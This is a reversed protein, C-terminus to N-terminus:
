QSILHFVNHVPVPDDNINTLTRNIRDLMFQNAQTGALTSMGDLNSCYLTLAVTLVDREVSGIGRAFGIQNECSHTFATDNVRVDCSGTPACTISLRQTSGDFSDIAEWLGVFARPGSGGAANAISVGTLTLGLSLAFALSRNLRVM